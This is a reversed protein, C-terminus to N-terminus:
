FIQIRIALRDLFGFSLSFFLDKGEEKWKINEVGCFIEGGLFDLYFKQEEEGRFRLLTKCRILIENNRNRLCGLDIIGCLAESKRLFTRSFNLKSRALM